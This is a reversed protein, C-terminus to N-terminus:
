LGVQQRAWAVIDVGLQQFVAGIAFAAVTTVLGIGLWQILDGREEAVARSAWARLAQLLPTTPTM